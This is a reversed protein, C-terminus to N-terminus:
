DQARRLAPAWKTILDPRFGSWEDRVARSGDPGTQVVLVVPAKMHLRSMVYARATEDQDMKPMRAVPSGEAGVPIGARDLARETSDCQVCATKSYFEASLEGAAPDVGEPALHDAAVEEASLARPAPDTLHTQNQTM